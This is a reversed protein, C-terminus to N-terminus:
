VIGADHLKQLASVEEVFRRRRWQENDRLPHLLKVAVPEGSNAQDLARYVAAFGGGAIRKDLLFRGDLTRGTWDDPPDGAAPEEDRRELFERKQKWYDQTARAKQRHRIWRALVWTLAVLALAIAMGVSWRLWADSQVAFPYELLPRGGGAAVQLRYSGAALK